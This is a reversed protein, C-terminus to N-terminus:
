AESARPSQADLPEFDVIFINSGEHFLAFRSGFNFFLNKLFDFYVGLM